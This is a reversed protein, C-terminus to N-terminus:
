KEAPHYLFRVVIVGMGVIQGFSQATVLPLFWRYKEFNLINLGVLGTLAAQFFLLFSIWAILWLSWQGRLQLFQLRGRLEVEEARATSRVDQWSDPESAPPPAAAADRALLRKAEALSAGTLGAGAEREKIAM